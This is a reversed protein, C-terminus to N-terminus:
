PNFRMFVGGSGLIFGQDGYFKVKYFNAPQDDGSNDVIWSKGNNRSLFIKGGGGVCWLDGNERKTVDLIGYGGSNINTEYFEIEPEDLNADDKVFSVGGARTTMWMTNALDDGLVGMTVIRRITKRNHPMWADSGPKWTLYFNGRANVGIYQGKDDRVVSNISGSYYSAGAVGSSSVRNLTADITELVQAKWNKGANSTRYIAGASTIIEAGGDDLAAVSLFDGPLKSSFPVRDWTAGGDTSHVMIAPKGVAWGENGKFSISEWRYNIDEDGVVKDLDVPKWSLGSDKTTLFTGQSGVVYGTKDDLFSMDFFVTTDSVPMPIKDWQSIKEARAGRPNTLSLASAAAGAVGLAATNQFLGRRSMGMSETQTTEKEARVRMPASSACRRRSSEVLSLRNLAATGAGPMRATHTTAKVATQLGNTRSSFLVAAPAILALLAAPLVVSRRQAHTAQMSFPEM